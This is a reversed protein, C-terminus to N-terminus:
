QCGGQAVCCDAFDEGACNAAAIERTCIVVGKVLFMQLQNNAALPICLGVGADVTKGQRYDPGYGVQLDGNIRLFPNGSSAFQGYLLSNYQSSDQNDIVLTDDVGTVVSQGAGYGIFINNSGNDNDAGSSTGLYTNHSGISNKGANFGVAINGGASSPALAMAEFGIAVNQSGLTNDSLARTGVAVNYAGTNSMLSQAGLATNGYSSFRDAAGLAFYGVGTNLQASLDGTDQAFSSGASEGLFTNSFYFTNNLSSDNNFETQNALTNEFLSSSWGSNHGFLKGSLYLMGTGGVPTNVYPDILGGSFSLQGSELVGLNRSRYSFDTVTSSDCIGPSDCWPRDVIVQNNNNIQTVMRYQGTANNRIETGVALDHALWCVGPNVNVGNVVTTSNSIELNCTGGPFVYWGSNVQLIDLPHDTGIGLRNNTNDWFINPNNEALGSAGQFILSGETFGSISINKVFINRWQLSASGLDFTQDLDPYINGKALIASTGATNSNNGITLRDLSKDYLFSADYDLAGASSGFVMASNPIGLNLGAATSIINTAYLNAWRKTASGLDRNNDTHPGVSGNVDLTFNLATNAGIGLRDSADDWFFNTNDQTLGSASQFYVSGNTLSPNLSATINNAYINNWRIASSGLDSVGNTNPGVNGAVQLQFNAPPNTTAGIGVNGNNNYINTSGVWATGNWYITSGTAGPDALTSGPGCIPGSSNFGTVVPTAGGCSAAPLREWPVTGLTMVGNAGFSFRNAGGKWFRLENTGGLRDDYIGWHNGAGATSQIDIEANQGSTKYTHLRANPTNTGLGLNDNSNDWYFNANDETMGSPSQFYVSGFTFGPNVAGHLTTAYVNNWKLLSSGLDYAGNVNPGANGGIELQFNNPQVGNGLHIGVNGIGDNYINTNNQWAPIGSAWYWTAGVSGAPMASSSWSLNMTDGAVSSVVLAQGATGATSPLVWNSISGSGSNNVRFSLINGSGIEQLSLNNSAGSNRLLLYGDKSQPTTGVNIPEEKNAGPPTATPGTWTAALTQSVITAFFGTILLGLFIIQKKNLRVPM